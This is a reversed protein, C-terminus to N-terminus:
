MSMISKLQSNMLERCQPALIVRKERAEDVYHRMIRWVSDDSMGIMRSVALPPMERCMEVILAEFHLFFG